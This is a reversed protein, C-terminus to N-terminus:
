LIGKVKLVGVIIAYAFIYAYSIIASIFGVLFTIGISRMLSLEMRKQFTYVLVIIFMGIMVIFMKNEIMLSILFVVFGLSMIKDFIDDEIENGFGKRKALHALIKSITTASILYVAFKIMFMDWFLVHRNMLIIGSLGILMSAPVIFLLFLRMDPMRFRIINEKLFRMRESEHMTINDRNNIHNTNDSDKGDEKEDEKEDKHRTNININSGPSKSEPEELVDDILMNIYKENYGHEVLVDKINNIAFGRSYETRIYDILRAENTDM